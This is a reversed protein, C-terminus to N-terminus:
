ISPGQQREERFADGYPQFCNHENLYKFNNEEDLLWTNQEHTDNNKSKLIFILNLQMQLNHGPVSHQLMCITLLILKAHEGFTKM